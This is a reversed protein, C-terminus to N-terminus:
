YSPKVRKFIFTFPEFNDWACLSCPAEGEVRNECGNSFVCGKCNGEKTIPEYEVGNIVIGNQIM